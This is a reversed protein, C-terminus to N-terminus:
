TSYASEGGLRRDAYLASEAEGPRQLAAWGLAALGAVTAVVVAVALGPRGSALHLAAAIALIAAWSWLALRLAAVLRELWLRRRVAGLLARVGTSEDTDGTPPHRGTNM